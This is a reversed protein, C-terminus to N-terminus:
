GVTRCVVYGLGQRFADSFIVYGVGAFSLVLVPTTIFCNKFEQFCQECKEDWEYKVGKKTLRTLPIAIPLFYEM